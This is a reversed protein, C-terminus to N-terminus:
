PIQTHYTGMIWINENQINTQAEKLIRFNIYTGMKLIHRQTYKYEEYNTM